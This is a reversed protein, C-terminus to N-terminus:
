QPQFTFIYTIKLKRGGVGRSSKEEWVGDSCKYSEKTPKISNRTGM